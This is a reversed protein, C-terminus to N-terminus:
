IGTYKNCSTARRLTGVNKELWDLGAHLTGIKQIRTHNEAIDGYTITYCKKPTTM